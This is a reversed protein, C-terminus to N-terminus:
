AVFRYLMNSYQISYATTVCHYQLVIINYYLRAPGDYTCDTLWFMTICPMVRHARTRARMHTHPSGQTALLNVTNNLYAANITQMIQKNSFQIKKRTM